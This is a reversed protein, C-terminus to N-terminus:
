PVQQQMNRSQRQPYQWAAPPVDPAQELGFGAPGGAAMAAAACAVSGAGGSLQALRAWLKMEGQFAALSSAALDSKVASQVEDIRSEVSSFRRNQEQQLSACAQDCAALRRDHSEQLDSQKKTVEQLRQELAGQQSGSEQDLRESIERALRERWDMAGHEWSDMEVRLKTLESSLTTVQRELGGVVENRFWSSEDMCHNSLQSLRLELQRIASDYKDSASKFHSESASFQTAHSETTQRLQTLHRALDVVQDQQGTVQKALRNLETRWDAAALRREMEELRANLADVRSSQLTGKSELATEVRWVQNALEQRFREEQAHCHAQLARSQQMDATSLESRLQEAVERLRHELQAQREQQLTAQASQDQALGQAIGRVDMLKTEDVELQASIRTVEGQLATAQDSVFVVKDWLRHCMDQLRGELRKVVDEHLDAEPQVPRATPQASLVPTPLPHPQPAVTPSARASPVSARVDPVQFLEAASPLSEWTAAADDTYVVDQQGAAAQLCGTLLAAPRAVGSAVGRGQGGAQLSPLPPIEGAGLGARQSLIEWERIVGDEFDDVVHRGSPSLRDAM